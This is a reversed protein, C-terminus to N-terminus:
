RFIDPHSVEDLYRKKVKANMTMTKAYCTVSLPNQAMLVWVVLWGGSWFFAASLLCLAGRKVVVTTSTEGASHQCFDIM